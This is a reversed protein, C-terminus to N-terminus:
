NSEQVIKNLMKVINNIVVKPSVEKKGLINLTSKLGDIDSFFQQYNGNVDDWITKSMGGTAGVPIIKLGKNKAIEFEKKMGEASIIKGTLPDKKTGFLFIAIGADKITEERYQNWLTALNKKDTPFQPFPKLILRENFNAPNNKEKFDLAGNIVASGIGLGYGSVIDFGEKLLRVSLDHVFKKSKEEGWNTPYVEASGSIFIRHRDFKKKISKLITTIENYDDILITEVGYRRLDEVHHDLQAKAYKYDAAKSFNKRQVKKMLCYHTRQNKEGLLVRVRSLIYNINPDSFSFGLFLFTKNVLDGQLSTTFLGRKEPYSEYDDRTLVANVPDSADGHMKYVVASRGKKTLPLQSVKHKVDVVKGLKSYTSEIVDDYNTTWITSIPLSAIIRHNETEKSKQSFQNLLQNNIKHRSKRNVHYQAVAVLDSERDVSLGIDSAIGRLLNKWDVFGAPISLGAGAFIAASSERIASVYEEIFNEIEKNM